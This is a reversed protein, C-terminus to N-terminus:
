MIQELASISKIEAKTLIVALHTPINFCIYQFYTILETEIRGEFPLHWKVLLCIRNHQNKTSKWSPQTNEECHYVSLKLSKEENTRKQWSINM